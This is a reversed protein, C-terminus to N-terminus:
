SKHFVGVTITLKIKFVKWLSSFEVKLKVQRLVSRSATFPFDTKQLTTYNEAMLYCFFFPKVTVSYTYEKYIPALFRKPASPFTMNKESKLVVFLLHHSTQKISSPM